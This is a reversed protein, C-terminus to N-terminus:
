TRGPALQTNIKKALWFVGPGLGIFKWGSPSSTSGFAATMGFEEVARESVPDSALSYKYKLEDLNQEISVTVSLQARAASPYVVNCVAYSYIVLTFM